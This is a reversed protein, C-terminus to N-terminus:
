EARGDAPESVQKLLEELRLLQEDTAKDLELSSGLQQGKSTVDVKNQRDGVERAIDDLVGRLQAVEAANFEEYEVVEYNDGSGIGKKMSTWFLDDRFLEKTLRKALKQLLALREAKKALGQTLARNDASATIIEIDLHRTRRYFDVQQRAVNFPTDAHGARDNIEDTALGEAIWELLLERQAKKLRV